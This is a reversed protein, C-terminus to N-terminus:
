GVLEGLRALTTAFDQPDHRDQRLFEVLRQGREVLRKEEPPANKFLGMAIKDENKELAALAANARRALEEHAGGVVDNMVRSKSRIVDIAPYRGRAAIERSLVIHGDLLGMTEDAVPEGIDDGAVLVTYLATISGRADNGAREFLEPLRAFVSPPYGQRGPAEGAALGIERQARAFRTVSDMLLVVNEGRARAEEAIATAVWAARLRLVAPQDSTSVVVTARKMGEEGLDNELFGRVEKGREGILALVIRDAQVNRAIMSLLTSKGCGAAAFIGMRQGRGLTLVGDIARVGTSLAETIPRRALPNPPSNWLPASAGAHLAGRSGLDLPRGLGDLVRGEVRAGVPVTACEEEVQIEARLRLGQVPELPSCSVENREFGVVEARVDRRDSVRIACIDGVGADPVVARLLLGKMETVYGLRHVAGIRGGLALEDILRRSM